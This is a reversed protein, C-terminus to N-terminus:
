KERASKQTLKRESRSLAKLVTVSYKWVGTHVKILQNIEGDFPYLRLGIQWELNLGGIDM